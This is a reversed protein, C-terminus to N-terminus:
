NVLELQKIPKNWYREIERMVEPRYELEFYCSLLEVKVEDTLKDKAHTKVFESLQQLNVTVGIVKPHQKTIVAFLSPRVAVTIADIDSWAFHKEIEKDAIVDKITVGDSDIVASREKGIANIYGRRIFAEPLVFANVMTMILGLIMGINITPFLSNTFVYFSYLLTPIGVGGLIVAILTVRKFSARFESSVAKLEM